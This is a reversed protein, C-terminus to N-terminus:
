TELHTSRRRTGTRLCANLPTIKHAITTQGLCDSFSVLSGFFDHVGSSVCIGPFHRICLLYRPRGLYGPRLTRRRDKPVSKVTDDLPYHTHGQRTEDRGRRTPHRCPRSGPTTPGTSETNPSPPRTTTPRTPALDRSGSPSASRSGPM